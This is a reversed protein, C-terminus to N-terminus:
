TDLSGSLKAMLSGKGSMGRQLLYKIEPESQTQYLITLYADMKRSSYDIFLKSGCVTEKM